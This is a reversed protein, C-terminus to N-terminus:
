WCPDRKCASLPDWKFAQQCQKTTPASRSRTMMEVYAAVHVPRITELSAIGTQQCFALFEGVAKAYAKRTNPNRINSTFFDIFRIAAKEGTAAVLAPIPLATPLRSFNM